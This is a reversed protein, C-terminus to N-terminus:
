KNNDNSSNDEDPKPEQTEEQEQLEPEPQTAEQEQSEPEPQTAEQEQSEPEPQTAEQEQSEPEPQTAENFEQRRVVAQNISPVTKGRTFFYIGTAIIAFAGMVYLIINFWSTEKQTPEPKAEVKQTPEPKAEVKQTPEPKAEVKQIPEPKAEVKQIPEPKAEIKQIPEPKAEVVPSKIEKTQVVKVEESQNNDKSVTLFSGSTAIVVSIILAALLEM